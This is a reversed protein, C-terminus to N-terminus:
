SDIIADRALDLPGFSDIIAILDGDSYLGTNNDFFAVPALTYNGPALFLKDQGAKFDEIIAYDSDGAQDYHIFIQTGDQSIGGLAFIEIGSDGVLTDQGTEDSAMFLNGSADQLITAGTLTDNGNDGNIIDDGGGGAIIDDGNDGNIIENSPTGTLFDNGDTGSIIDRGLIASDFIDFIIPM